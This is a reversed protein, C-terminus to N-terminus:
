NESNLLDFSLKFFTEEINEGTLASIEFYPIDMAKALRTADIPNVIRNKILDIKNGVLYGDLNSKNLLHNKLDQHWKPVNAFSGPSTVDFVLLFASAGEYFQKRITEFKKQGGIDWFVLEVSNDQVVFRKKTINLGMTPIYARMFVNDTFKLITSTKGVSPDGLVIVKFKEASEEGLDEFFEPKTENKIIINSKSRLYDVTEHLTECLKKIEEFAKQDDFNNEEHEIIKQTTEAFYKDIYSLYRYFIIDDEEKFLFTIASKIIEQNYTSKREFYKILIKTKLHKFPYILLIEPIFAQDTSLIDSCKKEILKRYEEPFDLPYWFFSKPENVDNLDIYFIAPVFNLNM